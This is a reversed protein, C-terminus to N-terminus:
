HAIRESSNFGQVEPYARFFWIPFIGHKTGLRDAKDFRRGSVQRTKRTGKCDEQM